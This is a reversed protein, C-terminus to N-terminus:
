RSSFSALSPIATGLLISQPNTSGHPGLAGHFMGVHLSCSLCLVSFIKTNQNIWHRTRIPAGWTQNSASSM